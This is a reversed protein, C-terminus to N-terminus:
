QQGYEKLTNVVALLNDLPTDRPVECGSSILTNSDAAELCKTVAQRVTEPNGAYLAEVPDINGNASSKGAFEKVCLDFDVMHDIDIIDAGSKCIHKILHSIDGCIHLKAKAGKNHIESILKQEYPLVIETYVTPSIISAVADGVGIIDAGAEIQAKAFLIAQQCSIDMLEKVFEPEDYLDMMLNNMGRLDNAEAFAGEVWGVIPYVGKVEQKYLEVTKVTNLMRVSDLPNVIKLKKIDSVESLLHKKCLPQGDPPFEIKQGFDYAECYPDSMVTVVDVGFKEACKINAEVKSKYDCCFKSYKTGAYKAAFAMLISLNPARDVPKGELRNFLREYSNM